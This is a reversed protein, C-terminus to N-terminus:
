RQFPWHFGQKSVSIDTIGLGTRILYQDPASVQVGPFAIFEFQCFFHVYHPFHTKSRLAVVKYRNIGWLLGGGLVTLAGVV